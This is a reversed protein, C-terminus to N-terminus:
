RNPTHKDIAWKMYCTAPNCDGKYCGDYWTATIEYVVNDHAWLVSGDRHALGLAVGLDRLTAEDNSTFGFKDILYALFENQRM